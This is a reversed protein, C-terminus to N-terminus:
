AATATSPRPRRLRRRLTGLYYTKPAQRVAVPLHRYVPAAARIGARLMREDRPSWSLDLEARIPEPLLGVTVFRSVPITPRLVVPPHAPRLLERAVARGAANVRLTAVTETWYADFRERDAPWADAPCGLATAFVAYQRYCEDADRETLPGFFDGYLQMGTHFLTAAVWVQLDPDSADYGPGRVSRHMARVANSIRRAEERTGFVVGYVYRLTGALRDLPREAFDSHDAVGQGVAPHAVQLITACGGGALLIGERVVRRIVADDDFWGDPTM